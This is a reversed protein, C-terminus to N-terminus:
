QAGSRGDLGWLRITGDGSASALLSGDASWAVDWVAYRHGQLVALTTEEGVQWLRITGDFGASALLDGDHSWALSQVAGSHGALTAVVAGDPLQWLVTRGDEQGTALLSGDPAWALALVPAEAVLTAGPQRSAVDWIIVRFTGDGEVAGALQPEGSVLRRRGPGLVLEGLTGWLTGLRM